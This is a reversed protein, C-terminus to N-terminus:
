GKMMANVMPDEDQTQSLQGSQNRPKAGAQRERGRSISLHARPTEARCLCRAGHLWAKDM